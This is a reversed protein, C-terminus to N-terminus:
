IMQWNYQKVIDWVSIYWFEALSRLHRKVFINLPKTVKIAGDWINSIRRQWFIEDFSFTYKCGTKTSVEFDSDKLLRKTADALLHVNEKGLM